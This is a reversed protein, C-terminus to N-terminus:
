SSTVSDTSAKFLGSATKSITLLGKPTSMVLAVVQQATSFSTAPVEDTSDPPAVPSTIRHGTMYCNSHLMGSLPTMSLKTHKRENM